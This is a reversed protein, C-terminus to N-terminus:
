GESLKAQCGQKAYRPHNKLDDKVSVAKVYRRWYEKYREIDEGTLSWIPMDGVFKLFKKLRHEHDDKYTKRSNNKHSEELYLDIFERLGIKKELPLDVIGQALKLEIDKQALEALKQSKGARKKIRRGSLSYDVYWTGTDKRCFLRAM